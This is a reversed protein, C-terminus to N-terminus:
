QKRSKKRIIYKAIKHATENNSAFVFHYISSKRSNKLELPEETVYKFIEKLKEAYVNAIKKITNNVKKITQDDGFLNGQTETEYFKDRLERESMGFFSILKKANKLEGNRDLLRNIIVGSPVLIWLDVRKCKLCEISSWDIQMGFPDLFILAAKNKDLKRSFRRLESNVDGPIFTFKKDNLLTKNTLNDKLEQLATEDIDVFYYEDFKQPLNLIREASGKYVDSEESFFDSFLNMEEEDINNDYRSGSGAFGDFYITTPWGRTEKQKNMITLYAKVYQQFAELKQETWNGGWNAKKKLKNISNEM